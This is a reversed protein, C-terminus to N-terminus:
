RRKKGTIWKSPDPEYTTVIVVLPPFSAQAHLERKKQTRGYILCNPSYKDDHYEEIIEGRMIIEEFEHRKISRMIMRKVAHESFKYHGKQICERVSRINM